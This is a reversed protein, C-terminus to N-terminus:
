EQDIQGGLAASIAFEGLASFFDVDVAYGDDAQIVQGAGHGVVGALHVRAVEGRKKQQHDFVALKLDIGLVVDNAFSQEGLAAFYHVRAEAFKELQGCQGGRSACLIFSSMM